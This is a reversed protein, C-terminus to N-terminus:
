FKYTACLLITMTTHVSQTNEVNSYHYENAHIFIHGFFDSLRLLLHVTFLCPIGWQPHSNLPPRLVIKSSSCCMYNTFNHLHVRMNFTLNKYKMINWNWFQFYLCLGSNVGLNFGCQIWDLGTSTCAPVLLDVNSQWPMWATVLTM